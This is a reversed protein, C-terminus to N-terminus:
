PNEVLPVEACAAGLNTFQPDGSIWGQQGDPAVVQLWACDGTQGSVTLEM